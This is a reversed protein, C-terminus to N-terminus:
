TSTAWLLPIFTRVGEACSALQWNCHGIAMIDISEAHSPLCQQVLAFTIGRGDLPGGSRDAKFTM